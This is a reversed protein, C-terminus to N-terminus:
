KPVLACIISDMAARCFRTRSSTSLPGCRRWALLRVLHRLVRVEVDGQAPLAVVREPDLVADHRGAPLKSGLVHEGAHGFVVPGEAQVGANAEIKHRNALLLEAHPSVTEAVGEGARQAVGGRAPQALRRALPEARAAELRLIAGNVGLGVDM